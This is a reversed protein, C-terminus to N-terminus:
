CGSCTPRCSKLQQKEGRQGEACDVPMLSLNVLCTVAPLLARLIPVIASLGGWVRGSLSVDIGLLSADALISDRHSEANTDTQRDMRRNM